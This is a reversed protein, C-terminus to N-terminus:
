KRVKRFAEHLVTQVIDNGVSEVLGSSFAADYALDVADLFEVEGAEVRDALEFSRIALVELQRAGLPSAANGQADRLLAHRLVELPCGHQLALSAAVASTM